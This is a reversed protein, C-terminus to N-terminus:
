ISINPVVNNTHNQGVLDTTENANINGHIQQFNITERKFKVNQFTEIAHM